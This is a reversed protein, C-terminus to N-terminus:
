RITRNNFKLLQQKQRDWEKEKEVQRKDYNKKGKALAIKVKVYKNHKFYMSLAVISYGNQKVKANLKLIEKHKLLLKRFRMPDKKTHTDVSLGVSINCGILFVENNKIKVYSDKLQVRQDRIAKVEWGDLVIGAEFENEIFFDHFAQRNSALTKM